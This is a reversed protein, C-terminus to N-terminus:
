VPQAHVALLEAAQTVRAEAEAVPLKLRPYETAALVDVDDRVAVNVTPPTATFTVCAAAAAPHVKLTVGDLTDAGALPVLPFRV